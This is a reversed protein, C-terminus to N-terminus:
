DGTGRKNDGRGILAKLESLYLRFNLIMHLAALVCLIVAAWAHANRIAGRAFGLVLGTKGFYLMAGSAALFLFALILISSVVARVPLKKMM